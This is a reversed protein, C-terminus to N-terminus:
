RHLRALATGIRTMATMVEDTSDLTRADRNAPVAYATDRGLSGADARIGHDTGTKNGCFTAATRDWTPWRTRISGPRGDVPRCQDGALPNSRCARMM